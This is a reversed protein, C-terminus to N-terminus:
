RPAAAGSSSPCRRRPACGSSSRAGTSTSCSTPAPAPCRSRSSPATPRSGRSATTGTSSGPKTGKPALRLLPVTREPDVVERTVVLVLSARGPPDEEPLDPLRAATECLPALRDTFATETLGALAPYGLAVLTEVQRDLVTTAAVTATAATITVEPHQATGDTRLPGYEVRRPVAANGCSVAVCALRPSM